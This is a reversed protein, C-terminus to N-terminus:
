CPWYGEGTELPRMDEDKLVPVSGTDILPSAADSVELGIETGGDPEISSLDNVMIVGGSDGFDTEFIYVGVKDSRDVRVEAGVAAVGVNLVNVPRDEIFVDGSRPVTELPIISDDYEEDAPGATAGASVTRRLPDTDGTM